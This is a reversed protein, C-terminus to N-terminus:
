KKGKKAPAAAKAPPAAPTLAATAADAQSMLDKASASAGVVDSKGQETMTQFGADLATVSEQGKAVDAKTLGAPLKKAKALAAIQKKLAEIKKPLEAQAQEFAAKADALKAAAAKELEEKKAKAVAVARAAQDPIDKAVSLAAKWDERAAAAKASSLTEKTAKALEPAFKAVEDSLTAVASEGAQIAAQAPAKAPDTCATALLFPVVALLTKLKNM